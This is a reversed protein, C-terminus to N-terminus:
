FQPSKPEVWDTIPTFKVKKSDFRVLKNALSGIHRDPGFTMNGSLGKMDLNKIAEMGSVFSDVTLNRGANELGAHTAKSFIWGMAYHGNKEYKTGSYKKMVDLMEKMGPVDAGMPVYNATAIFGNSAEPALEAMKPNITSVNGLFQPKYGMKWCYNMLQSFVRGMASVIVYDAGADRMAKSQASLDIARGKFGSVAVLKKGHYKMANKAGDLQDNGMADDQYVIGIKANQDQQMIWDVLNGSGAYYSTFPVFVLKNVPHYFKYNSGNPFMPVKEKVALPHTVWSAASGLVQGIAFVKDKMILKKAAPLATKPFYGNDELVVKVKRGHIGGKDNIWAFYDKMSQATATGAYAAVSTTDSSCGILIETDTVGRVEEAMSPLVWFVLILVISILILLNKTKM